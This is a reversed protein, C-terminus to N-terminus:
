IKCRANHFGFSAIFFYVKLVVEQTLVAGCKLKLLLKDVSLPLVFHLFHLQTENKCGDDDGGDDGTPDM